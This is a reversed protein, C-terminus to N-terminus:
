RDILERTLWGTLEEVFEEALKRDTAVAESTSIDFALWISRQVLAETRHCKTGDRHCEAACM